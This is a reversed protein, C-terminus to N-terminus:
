ERLRMSHRRPPAHTAPSARASRDPDGRRYLRGATAIGLAQQSRRSVRGSCLAAGSGGARVAGRVLCWRM